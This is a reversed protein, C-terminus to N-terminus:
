YPFLWIFYAYALAIVLGALALLLQRRSTRGLKWNLYCNIILLLGAVLCFTPLVFYIYVLALAGALLVGGEPNFLLAVAVLGFYLSVLLGLCGIGTWVLVKEFKTRNAFM